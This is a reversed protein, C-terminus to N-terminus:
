KDTIIEIILRIVIAALIVGGIFEGPSANKFFDIIQTM